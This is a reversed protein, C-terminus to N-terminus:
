IQLPGSVFLYSAWVAGLPDLRYDNEFSGRLGPGFWRWLGGGCVVAMGCALAAVWHRLGIGDWLGFAACWRWLGIGDWLGFAVCRGWCVLHRVGGGSCRGRFVLQQCRFAIRQKQLHGVLHARCSAALSLLHRAIATQSVRCPASVSRICDLDAARRRPPRRSRRRTQKGSRRPRRRRMLQPGVSVSSSCASVDSLMWHAKVM